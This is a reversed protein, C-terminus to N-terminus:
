TLALSGHQLCSLSHVCPTTACLGSGPPSFRAPLRRIRYNQMGTMVSPVLAGTMVLVVGMVLMVELLSFGLYPKQANRMM